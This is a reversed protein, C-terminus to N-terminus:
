NDVPQSEEEIIGVAIQKTEMHISPPVIDNRACPILVDRFITQVRAIGSTTAEVTSPKILQISVSRILHFCLAYRIAESPEMASTM